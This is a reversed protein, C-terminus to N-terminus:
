LLKNIHFEGLIHHRKGLKEIGKGLVLDSCRERPLLTSWSPPRSTWSRRSRPSWGPSPPLCRHLPRASCVLLPPRPSGWLCLSVCSLRRPCTSHSASLCYLFLHESCWLGKFFIIIIIVRDQCPVKQKKNKNDQKTDNKSVQTSTCFTWQREADSWMVSSCPLQTCTKHVVMLLKVLFPVSFKSWLVSKGGMSWINKLKEM